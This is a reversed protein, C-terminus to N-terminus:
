QKICHIKLNNGNSLNIDFELKGHELTKKINKFYYYMKRRTPNTKKFNKLYSIVDDLNYEGTKENQFQKLTSYFDSDSKIPFSM